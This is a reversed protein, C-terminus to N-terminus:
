AFLEGKSCSQQPLTRSELLNTLAQSDQEQDDSSIVLAM